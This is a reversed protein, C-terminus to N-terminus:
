ETTDHDPRLYHLDSLLSRLAPASSAPWRALLHQAFRERADARTFVREGLVALEHRADSITLQAHPPMPLRAAWGGLARLFKAEICAGDAFRAAAHRLFLALGEFAWAFATTRGGNKSLVGALYPFLDRPLQHGAPTISASHDAALLRSAMSAGESADKLALASGGARALESVYDAFSRDLNAVLEPTDTEAALYTEAIHLLHATPQVAYLLMAERLMPDNQVDRVVGASFKGYLQLAPEAILATWLSLNRYKHRARRLEVIEQADPSGLAATAVAASSACGGTVKPKCLPFPFGQHSALGPGGADKTSNRLEIYVQARFVNEDRIAQVQQAQQSAPEDRQLMHYAHALEHYLLVPRPFPITQGMPNLVHYGQGAADTVDLYITIPETLSGPFTEGGGNATIVTGDPCVFTSNVGIILINTAGNALALLRSSSAVAQEKQQYAVELVFPSAQFTTLGPDCRAIQLLDDFVPAHNGLVTDILISM